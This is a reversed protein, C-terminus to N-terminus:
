LQFLGVLTEDRRSILVAQAPERPDVHRDWDVDDDPSCDGHDDPERNRRQDRQQSGRGAAAAAMALWAAVRRWRMTQPNM